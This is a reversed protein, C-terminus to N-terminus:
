KVEKSLNYAMAYFIIVIIFIMQLINWSRVKPNNDNNQNEQPSQSNSYRCVILDLSYNIKNECRKTKFKYSFGPGFSSSFM